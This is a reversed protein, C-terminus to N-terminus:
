SSEYRLVGDNEGLRDPDTLVRDLWEVHGGWPIPGTSFSWRRTDPDNAWQYLLEADAAAAERIEM